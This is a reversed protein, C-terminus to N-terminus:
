FLKVKNKEENDVFEDSIFDLQEYFKSNELKFNSIKIEMEEITHFDIYIEGNQKPKLNSPM